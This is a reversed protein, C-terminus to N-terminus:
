GCMKKVNAGWGWMKNQLDTGGERYLLFHFLLLLLLLPLLLLLMKTSFILAGGEALQWFFGPERLIFLGM